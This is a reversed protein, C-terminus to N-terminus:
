MLLQNLLPSTSRPVVQAPLSRTNYVSLSLTLSANTRPLEVVPHASFQPELASFKVKAERKSHPHGPNGRFGQPRVWGPNLRAADAFGTAQRSAQQESLPPNAQM